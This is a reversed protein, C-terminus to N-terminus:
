KKVRTTGNCWGCPIKKGPSVVNGNEDKLPELINFGPTSECAVCPKTNGRGDAPDVAIKKFIGM